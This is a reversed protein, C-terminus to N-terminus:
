KKRALCFGDHEPAHEPLFALLNVADWRGNDRLAANLGCADEFSTNDVVLLGDRRLVRHCVSEVESYYRQDVDLFILDVNEAGIPLQRADACVLQCYQGYGAQRLRKAADVCHRHHLDLSLVRGGTARMARALFTTSYGQAAGLELVLRANMVRCLLELLRGFLPGVVPVGVSPCMTDDAPGPEPRVLSRFYAHADAVLRPVVVM